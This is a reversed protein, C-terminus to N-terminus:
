HFERCYGRIINSLINNVNECLFRRMYLPRLHSGSLKKSDKTFLLTTIDASISTVRRSLSRREGIWCLNVFRLDAKRAVTANPCNKSRQTIFRSLLDKIEAKKIGSKFDRFFSLIRLKYTSESFYKKFCRIFM